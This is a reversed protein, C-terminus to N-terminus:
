PAVMVRYRRVNYSYYRTIIIWLELFTGSRLMGLGSRLHFPVMLVVFAKRLAWIDWVIM